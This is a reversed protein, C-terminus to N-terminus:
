PAAELVTEVQWLGDVFLDGDGRGTRVLDEDVDLVRTHAVSVQVGHQAVPGQFGLHGEDATVFTGTDDNGAAVQDLIDGNAVM